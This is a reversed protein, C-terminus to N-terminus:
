KGYSFARQINKDIMSKCSEMETDIMKLQSNYMELQMDLKKDLANLKEKRANLQKVVESEPDMDNGISVMESITRTLSLKRETITQIKSELDLRFSNLYMLRFTSSALGM